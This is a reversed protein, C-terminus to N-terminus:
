CKVIMKGVNAGSMMDCFARGANTLGNVVTERNTLKGTMFWEILEGLCSEYHAMHELLLFRERTIKNKEM